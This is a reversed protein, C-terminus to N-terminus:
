IHILSLMLNAIIIPSIFYEVEQPREVWLLFSVADDLGNVVRTNCKHCVDGVYYAGKLEGCQCSPIISLNDESYNKMIISDLVEKTEQNFIDIRNILVKDTALRHYIEDFNQYALRDAM